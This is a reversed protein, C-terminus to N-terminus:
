KEAQTKLKALGKEFSGGIMRPMLLAFYGGIVPKDIEGSMSWTVKTSDGVREYRIAGKSPMEDMTMDYEIGKDEDSATVQIFGVGDKGTWTESAGIGKTEKGYTIEVTPDMEKWPMWDPWRRLDGVFEHIASPKAAIVITEEVRYDRPILFGVAAVVVVILLLVLLFKKM